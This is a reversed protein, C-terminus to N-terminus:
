HTKLGRARGRWLAEPDALYDTRSARFFILTGVYFGPDYRELTIQHAAMPGLSAQEVARARRLKRMSNDPVYAMFLLRYMPPTALFEGVRDRLRRVMVTLAFMRPWLWAAYSSDLIILCGIRESAPRLIKAM